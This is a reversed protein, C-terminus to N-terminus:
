IINHHSVNEPEREKIDAAARILGYLNKL